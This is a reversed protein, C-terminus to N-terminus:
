RSESDEKVYSSGSFHGPGSVCKSPDHLVFILSSDTFSLKLASTGCMRVSVKSFPLM